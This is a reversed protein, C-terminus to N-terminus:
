SKAQLSSRFAYYWVRPHLSYTAIHGCLRLWAIPRRHSVAIPLCRTLYYAVERARLAGCKRQVNEPVYADVIRLVQKQIRPRKGSIISQHSTNANYVRYGATCDANFGFPFCVAARVWMEWDEFATLRQDFGGLQEYVERRLVISPTQIRQRIYIKELWDQLLGTEDLERGTCGTVENSENIYESQCFFAGAEPFRDFCAEMSRYFDQGVKDDGHLQHILRGRSADLGSQYNRSKGVNSQQRIFRVRDGAVRNVVSIPDDETSHDDVVLIEMQQPGRDQELVSQLTQELYNACNHTPILVSWLPRPESSAVPAVAACFENPHSPIGRTSPRRQDTLM